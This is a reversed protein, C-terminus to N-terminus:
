ALAERRTRGALLYGGASLLGAAIGLSWSTPDHWIVLKFWTTELLFAIALLRYVAAGPGRATLTTHVLFLVHGSFPLIGVTRVVALVFVLADIGLRVGALSGHEALRQRLWLPAIMVMPAFYFALYRQAPWGHVFPVCALVALPLAVGAAALAGRLWARRAEPFPDSIRIPSAPM